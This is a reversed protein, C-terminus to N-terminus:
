GMANAGVGDAVVSLMSKVKAESALIERPRSLQQRRRM